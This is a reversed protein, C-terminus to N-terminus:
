KINFYQKLLAEVLDSKIGKQEDKPYSKMLKDLAEIVSEELYVSVQKRKPKKRNLVSSVSNNTEVNVETNTNNSTNSNTNNNTSTNTNVEEQNTGAVDAFALLNKKKSM